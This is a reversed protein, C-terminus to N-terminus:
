AVAERKPEAGIQEVLVPLGRATALRVIESRSKIGTVARAKEIEGALGTFDVTLVDRKKKKVARVLVASREAHLFFSVFAAFFKGARNSSWREGFGNCTM